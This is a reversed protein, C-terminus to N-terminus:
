TLGWLARGRACARVPTFIRGSRCDAIHHLGLAPPRIVFCLWEMEALRLRLRQWHLRHARRHITAKHKGIAVLGSTFAQRSHSNHRRSAPSYM